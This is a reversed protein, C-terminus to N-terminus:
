EQHNQQFDQLSEVEHLQQFHDNICVSEGLVLGKSESM